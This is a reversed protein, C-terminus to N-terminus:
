GADAGDRDNLDFGRAAVEGSIGVLLIGVGAVVVGAPWGFLVTLGLAVLAMGIWQLVINV